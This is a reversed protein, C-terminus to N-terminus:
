SIISCSTVEKIRVNFTPFHGGVVYIGKVERDDRIIQLLLKKLKRESRASTRLKLKHQDRFERFVVGTRTNRFEVVFKALVTVDQDPRSTVALLSLPLFGCMSFFSRRIM